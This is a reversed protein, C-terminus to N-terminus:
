GTDLFASLQTAVVLDALNAAYRLIMFDCIAGDSLLDILRSIAPQILNSSGQRCVGIVVVNREWVNLGSGGLM